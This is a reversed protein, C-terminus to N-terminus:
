RVDPAKISHMKGDARVTFANGQWRVERSLFSVAWVALSLVDRAPVLWWMTRGVIRFRARIVHHVVVRMALAASLLLAAHTSRSELWLLVALPLAHTVVSFVYSIPRVTRVTRAWRLEHLWLARLGSEYVINTVVSSALRVQYGLSRVLKGLM